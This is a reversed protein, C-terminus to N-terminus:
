EQDETVKVNLGETASSMRTTVLLEGAKVGATALVEERTARTVTLERLELQNGEGLIYVENSGRVAQRPIIVADNLRSGSLTVNVFLGPPPFRLPGELDAPQVSIVVGSTLAGSEVEGSSRVIEGPWTWEEGGLTGRVVANGTLNGTEDRALLGYKSLPIPLMVELESPSFLTMLEVGPSVIAGREVSESRIVGAFPAQIETRELDRQARAVEARASELSSRVSKLQPKRALLDGIEGKGLKEWDRLAQDRRAEEQELALEAEAVQSKAQELATQYDAEELRVLLEGATVRGGAKVNDGVETVKGSVQASLTVERLTEVVGEAEIETNGEYPRVEVVQVSPIPESVEVAEPKQMTKLLVFSLGAVLALMVLGIVFSLVAKLDSKRQLELESWEEETEESM